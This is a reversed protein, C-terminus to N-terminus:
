LVLINIGWQCKQTIGKVKASDSPFEGAKQVGEEVALTIMHCWNTNKSTYNYCIFQYVASQTVGIAAFLKDYKWYRNLVNHLFCKGLFVQIKNAKLNLHGGLPSSETMKILFIPNFFHM